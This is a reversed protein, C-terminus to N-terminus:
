LKPSLIIMDEGITQIDDWGIRVHNGEKKMGFWKYSPIVFAHIKGTKEDIELDTQGLLGMRLGKNVDVIEKQSLSSYRM